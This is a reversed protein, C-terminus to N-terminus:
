APWAHNDVVPYVDECNEIWRDVADHDRDAISQFLEDLSELKKVSVHTRLQAYSVEQYSMRIHWWLRVLYRCEQQYRDDALRDMIVSCVSEKQGEDRFWSDNKNWIDNISNM